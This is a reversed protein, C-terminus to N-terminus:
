GKRPAGTGSKGFVGSAVRMNKAWERLGHKELLRHFTVSSVELIAAAHGIIGNAETLARRVEDSEGLLRSAQLAKNRKGTRETM